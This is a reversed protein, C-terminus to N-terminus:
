PHLAIGVSSRTTCMQDSYRKHWGFRLTRTTPLVLGDWSNLRTLRLWHNAAFSQTEILNYITRHTQPYPVHDRSPSTRSPCSSSIALFVKWRNHGDPLNAVGYSLAKMSKM